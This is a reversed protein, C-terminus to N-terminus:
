RGIRGFGAQEGAPRSSPPAPLPELDKWHTPASGRLPYPGHKNDDVHWWDIDRNLWEVVYQGHACCVQIPRDKPATEIPQWTPRETQRWAEAAAHIDAVLEKTTPREPAPPPSSEATLESERQYVADREAEHKLLIERAKAKGEAFTRPTAEVDPRAERLLAAISPGISEAIAKAEDDDPTWNARVIIRLQEALALRSARDTM